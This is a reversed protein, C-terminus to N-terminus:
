YVYQAQREKESEPEVEVPKIENMLPKCQTWMCYWKVEDGLVSKSVYEHVKVGEDGCHDCTGIVTDQEDLHADMMDLFPDNM